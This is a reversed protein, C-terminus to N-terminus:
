KQFNIKAETSGNTFHSLTVKALPKPSCHVTPDIRTRTYCTLPRVSARSEGLLSSVGPCPPEGSNLVNVAAEQFAKGPFTHWM